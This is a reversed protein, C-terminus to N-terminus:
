THHSINPFIFRCVCRVSLAPLPNDHPISTLPLGPITNPATYGVHIHMRCQSYLMVTYRHTHAQRGWVAALQMFLSSGGWRNIKSNFVCPNQTYHTKPLNEAIETDWAWGMRYETCGSAGFQGGICTLWSIVSGNCVIWNPWIVLKRFLHERQTFGIMNAIKWFFLLLFAAFNDILSSMILYHAAFATLRSSRVVLSRFSVLGQCM